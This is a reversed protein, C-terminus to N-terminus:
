GRKSRHMRVPSSSYAITASLRPLPARFSAAPCTPWKLRKRRSGGRPEKEKKRKRKLTLRRRPPNRCRRCPQRTPWLQGRLHARCSSRSFSEGVRSPRWGILDRENHPLMCRAASETAETQSQMGNQHSRTPPHRFYGPADKGSSIRRRSQGIAFCPSAAVPSQAEPTPSIRPGDSDCRGCGM